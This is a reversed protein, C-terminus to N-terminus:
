NVLPYYTRGKTKHMLSLGRAGHMETGLAQWGTIRVNGNSLDTGRANPLECKESLDSRKNFPLEFLLLVTM